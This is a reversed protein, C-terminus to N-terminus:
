PSRRAQGQCQQTQAAAEPRTERGTLRTPRPQTCTTSGWSSAKGSDRGQETRQATPEVIGQSSTRAAELKRPKHQTWPPPASAVTPLPPQDVATRGTLPAWAPTQTLSRSELPRPWLRHRCRLTPTATSRARAGDCPAEQAQARVTDSRSSAGQSCSPRAPRPPPLPSLHTHSDPGQGEGELRRRQEPGGGPLLGHGM